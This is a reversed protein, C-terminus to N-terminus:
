INAARLVKSEQKFEIGAQQLVWAEIKTHWMRLLDLPRVKYHKEATASPKHGMIQAVVGVPCEVWESLTSFSRRLGHLTLGEIGAIACVKRHQISPEQLRGSEATGSSFVWTSPKWNQLDNEVRKGRLIRSRPPPTDNRRKLGKLLEEVYPTLPIVREGEVKDHITISKWRFDVDAWKLAALEERRSGILLLTQLYTAIVPNNIRRVAEFWTSLQERQLADTKAKKKPLISKAVRAQCPNDGAIGIYEPTDSCWNLFARLLRFALAAQTPRLASQDRLWAKVREGDIDSLKLPMLPALAAAESLRKRRMVKDGGLHALNQHDALHRASWKHRRAKIYANWADKVTIERRSVEKRKAEATAARDMKIQRPDIGKDTLAKLETAESQANSVSWTRVDGITLRLTKSHLRTEFIYSKSGAATIRLGLGPAKDDWYITQQKGRKCKFGSVRGATFNAKEMNAM